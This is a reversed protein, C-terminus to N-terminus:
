GGGPTTVVADAVLLGHFSTSVAANAQNAALFTM